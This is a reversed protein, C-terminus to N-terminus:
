ENESSPTQSSSDANNPNENERTEKAADAAAAQDTLAKTKLIAIQKQAAAIVTKREDDALIQLVAEESTAGEILKITETGNLAYQKQGSVEKAKLEDGTDDSNRSFTSITKDELRVAHNVADNKLGFPTGDSTVHVEHLTDNYDLAAKAAAKLDAM